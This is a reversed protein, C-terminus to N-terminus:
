TLVFSSLQDVQISWVFAQLRVTDLASEDPGNQGAELGTAELKDCELHHVSCLLVELLTRGKM